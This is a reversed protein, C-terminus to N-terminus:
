NQKSEIKNLMHAYSLMLMKQNWPHIHKINFYSRVTKHKEDHLELLFYLYLFKPRSSNNEIFKTVNDLIHDYLAQPDIIEAEKLWWSLQVRYLIIGVLLGTIQFCEYYTSM